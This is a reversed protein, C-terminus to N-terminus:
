VNQSIDVTKTKAVHYKQAEIQSKHTWKPIKSLSNITGLYLFIDFFM